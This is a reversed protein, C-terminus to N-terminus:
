GQGMRPHREWGIQALLTGLRGELSMEFAGKEMFGGGIERMRMQGGRNENTEQESSGPRGQSSSVQGTGWGSGAGRAEPSRRLLSM